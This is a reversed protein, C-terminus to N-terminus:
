VSLTSGISSPLAPMSLTREDAVAAAPSASSFIGGPVFEPPTVHYRLVRVLEDFSQAIEACHPAYKVLEVANKLGQILYKKQHHDPSVISRVLRFLYYQEERSLLSRHVQIDDIFSNILFKVSGSLPSRDVCTKADDLGLACYEFGFLMRGSHAYENFHTPAVGCFRFGCQALAAFLPARKSHADTYWMDSTDEESCAIHTVEPHEARYLGIASSIFTATLEGSVGDSFAVLPMTAAHTLRPEEYARFCVLAIVHGVENRLVYKKQPGAKSLIKLLETQEAPKYSATLLRIDDGDEMEIIVHKDPLTPLSAFRPRTYQGGIACPVSPTERLTKVCCVQSTYWFFQKEFIPEHRTWWDEYTITPNFGLKEVYLKAGAPNDGEWGLELQTTAPHTARIHQEVAQLMETAHGKGQHAPDTAVANIMAVHARDDTLFSVRCIAVSQGAGNLYFFFLVNPDAIYGDYMRKMNERPTELPKFFFPNIAPDRYLSLWRDFYAESNSPTIQLLPM